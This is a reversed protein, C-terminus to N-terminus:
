LHNSLLTPGYTNIHISSLSLLVKNAISPFYYTLASILCLFYDLRLPFYACPHHRFILVLRSTNVSNQAIKLRSKLSNAKGKVVYPKVKQDRLINRLFHISEKRQFLIIKM